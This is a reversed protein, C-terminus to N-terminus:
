EAMVTVADASNEVAGSLKRRSGVVVPGAGTVATIRIMRAAHAPLNIECVEEPRFFGLFTKDHFEYLAYKPAPKLGPVEAPTFRVTGAENGTWNLIAASIWSGDQAFDLAVRDPLYHDAEPDFPTVHARDFPMLSRMMELRDRDLAPFRESVTLLGGGLLQNVTISFAEEDNFRGMALHSADEAFNRRIQLADPDETWLANYFNRFINQRIRMPYPTINSDIANWHGRLDASSRVVEALGATGEYLGGCANVIGEKGVAKRVLTMARRYAQARNCEPDSFRVGPNIFLARLFDLKHYRFGWGNLKAYLSCLFEEAPAACPDLIRCHGGDCVFIAPSGDSKKLILEPYKEALKSEPAIVFPATWIGPIMGAESIADAMEAMGGPFRTEHVAWDGYTRFWGSDIQFLEFPLHEKQIFELNSLVEERTIFPGYYYWTCFINKAPSQISGLRARVREAHAALLEAPTEAEELYFDHLKRSKGPPLLVGDLEAEAVLRTMASRDKNTSLVVRGLHLDQGSFGLFLARRTGAATIVLGPDCYFDTGPVADPDDFLEAGCLGGGAPVESCDYIAEKLRVDPLSPAFLGPMDNKNRALRVVRWDAFPAECLPGPATIRLLEMKELHLPASGANVLEVSIRVRTPTEETIKRRILLDGCRASGDPQFVPAPLKAEAIRPAPLAGSALSVLHNPM